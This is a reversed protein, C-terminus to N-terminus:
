PPSAYVSASSSSIAFFAPKRPAVARGRRGVSCDNTMNSVHPARCARDDDGRRDMTEVKDRHGVIM